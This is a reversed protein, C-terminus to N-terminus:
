IFEASLMMFTNFNICDFIYSVLGQLEQNFLFDHFELMVRDEKVTIEFFNDLYSEPSQTRQSRM